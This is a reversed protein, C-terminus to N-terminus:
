VYVCIITLTPLGLAMFSAWTMVRKIPAILAMELYYGNIVKPKGCSNIESKQKKKFPPHTMNDM